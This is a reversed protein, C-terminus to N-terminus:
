AREDMETGQEKGNDGESRVESGIREHADEPEDRHAVLIIGVGEEPKVEEHFSRACSRAGERAEDGPIRPPIEHM